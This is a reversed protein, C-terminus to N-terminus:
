FDDDISWPRNDKVVAKEVRKEKQGTGEVASPSILQKLAPSDLKITAVLQLIIETVKYGQLNVQM